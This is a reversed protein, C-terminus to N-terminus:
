EKKKKLKLSELIGVTQFRDTKIGRFWVAGSPRNDIFHALDDVRLNKEMRSPNKTHTGRLFFFNYFGTYNM